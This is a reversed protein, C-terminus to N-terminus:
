PDMIRMSHDSQLKENANIYMIIADADADGGEELRTISISVDGDPDYQGGVPRTYEESLRTIWSGM